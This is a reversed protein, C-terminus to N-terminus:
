LEVHGHAWLLEQLNSFCAFGVHMCLNSCLMGVLKTDIIIISYHYYVRAIFYHIPM